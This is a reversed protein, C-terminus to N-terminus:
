HYMVNIDVYTDIGAIKGDNCLQWMQYDNSYNNNTTYYALWNNYNEHYWITELYYKSSYLLTQYGKKEIEEFFTTAINNLTNFSIHFSSYNTWNEWDFAVPLDIDYEKLHKVIWKAQKKADQIDNAYSYFYVGVKINNALANKINDHFKPDLKIEGDIKTQGGIKLMVFEVNQEKLKQFDVEGQWKSIDLGIQTNNKKYKQYVEKYDTFKKSLSNSKPTTTPKTIVKLIFDKSTQNNSKDTVIIQLPYEGVKTLDYKGLLKVELDDDYDDAYFIKNISFDTSNVEVIYPNSVIVTPYTVDIIDITISNKKSFGYKNKYKIEINKEGVKNTDILYDEILEGDLKSIFDSVYIKERFKCNLDSKFIIEDKSNYCYSFTISIISILFIILIIIINKQKFLSKLYKM